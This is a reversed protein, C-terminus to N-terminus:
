RPIVADPDRNLGRAVRRLDEPTVAAYAAWEAPLCDPEGTALSCTALATARGVAGDIARAWRLAMDHRASDLDVIRRLARRTRRLSRPTDAVIAFSGGLPGNRTDAGHLAALLDLAPRDPHAQPVTRWAAVTGEGRQPTGATPTTPLEVRGPGEGLASRAAALARDGDVEGAVVLTHASLPFARVEAVTAVLPTLVPRGYPHDPWLSAALREPLHDRASWEQAIVLLEQRVDEETVSALRGRELQLLRDLHEPAAAAWTVLRDPDTWANSTAGITALAEDYGGRFLLHEVLHALGPKGASAGGAYAVVVVM